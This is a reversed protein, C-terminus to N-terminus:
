DLNQAGGGQKQALIELSSDRGHRPGPNPKSLGVYSIGTLFHLLQAPDVQQAFDVLSAFRNFYFAPDEEVDATLDDVIGDIDGCNRQGAQADEPGVRAQWGFLSDLQYIQLNGQPHAEAWAPTQDM